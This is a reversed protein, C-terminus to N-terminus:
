TTKLVFGNRNSWYFFTSKQWYWFFRQEGWQSDYSNGANAQHRTLLSFLTTNCIPISHAQWRSVLTGTIQHPKLKLYLFDHRACLPHTYSRRSHTGKEKIYRSMRNPPPLPAKDDDIAIQSLSSTGLSLILSSSVAPFPNSKIPRKNGSQWPEWGSEDGM